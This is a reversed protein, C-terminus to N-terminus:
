DLRLTLVHQFPTYGTLYVGTGPLAPEAGRLQVWQHEAHGPGFRITDAGVRYEGFGEKLLFTSNSEAVPVVGTLEGGERFSIEVALPVNDTGQASLSIELGSETERVIAEYVMRCLQTQERRGSAKIWNEPTVPLLGPDAVPQLYRGRIEQRFCYADGRKEFSEPIFQGKGFFATSLRIAGVAVEGRRLTLWRSNGTHLLTLSTKGRRVRTMGSLPYEREYDDPIPVAAPLSVQLEPYEMLQALDACQPELFRLMSAYLGNGDRLALTRLAFWYGAMTGRTNLDQRRSIETVVEGNPHLLYAMADLNKRVPDLLEHRDLKLAAVVLANDVVANYGATSREIFQGEADLDIGEALWQDIRGVLRRDPFLANIQALAACVVWRHNPTHIGGHSLARGAKQLFGELLPFVAKDDHMRALQAACAVSHVAFATDPPSNFNTSLLDINGEENQVRELFGAALTMAELLGGDAHHASLPHFYAAAANKLFVAATHGHHIGHSDPFAGCWRSGAETVQTQLARGVAEDNLRVAEAVLGEDPAPGACAGRRASLLGFSVAGLELVERRNMRLTM